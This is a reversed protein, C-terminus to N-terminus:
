SSDNSECSSDRFMQSMRKQRWKDWKMPLQPFMAALELDDEKQLLGEKTKLEEIVEDPNDALTDNNDYMLQTFSRGNDDKLVGMM